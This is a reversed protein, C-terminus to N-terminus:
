PSTVEEVIEKALELISDAHGIQSINNVDFIQKEIDVPVGIGEYSVGQPDLWYENSMGLTWGNPLPKELIDSLMGQTASGVIKVHPFTRAAIVFEEGASVCADTTVVYVPKTFTQINGRRDCYPRVNFKQLLDPYRMPYKCIAYREQDAIHSAFALAFSHFGGRNFSVDIIVAECDAFSAFIKALQQHLEGLNDVLDDDEEGFSGMDRILLYGVQPTIKGWMINEDFATEANGHLLTEKIGAFLRQSWDRFYDERSITEQKSLFDAELAKRISSMGGKTEHRDDDFQAIVSTHGDGLGDFLREIVAFFEAETSEDTVQARAEAIRQAWDFNRLAFFPYYETMTQDICNLTTTPSPTLPQRFREPLEPLPELILASETDYPKIYRRGSSPEVAFLMDLPEDPTHEWTHDATASYWHYEKEGIEFVFGYGRAQWTGHMDPHFVGGMQVPLYKTPAMADVAFLRRKAIEARRQTISPDDGTSQHCGTFLLTTLTLATTVRRMTHPERHSTCPFRLSSIFFPRAGERYAVALNELLRAASGAGTKMDASGTGSKM